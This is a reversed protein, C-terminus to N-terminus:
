SKVSCHANQNQCVLDLNLYSLIFCYACSLMVRARVKPKKPQEASVGSFATFIAM